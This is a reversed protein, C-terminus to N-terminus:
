LCLVWRKNLVFFFCALHIVCVYLFFGEGGWLVLHGTGLAFAPRRPAAALLAGAPHSAQAEGTAVSISPGM